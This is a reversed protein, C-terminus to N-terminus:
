FFETPRNLVFPTSHRCVTYHEDMVIHTRMCSSDCSCQQLMEFPLQRVVSRVAMIESWAVVVQKGVQLVPHSWLAKVIIHIQHFTDFCPQAWLLCVGKVCACLFKNESMILAEIRATVINLFLKLIYTHIYKKYLLMKKENSTKNVAWWLNSELYGEYLVCVCVYMTAHIMAHAHVFVHLALLFQLLIVGLLQYRQTIRLM